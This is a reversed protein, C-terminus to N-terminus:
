KAIYTLEHYSDGTARNYIVFKHIKAFIYKDKRQTPENGGNYRYSQAVLPGIPSLASLCAIQEGVERPSSNSKHKFTAIFLPRSNRRSTGYRPPELTANRGFVLKYQPKLEIIWANQGTLLDYHHLYTEIPRRSDPETNEMRDYTFSEIPKILVSFEHTEPKYQNVSCPIAIGITKPIDQYKKKKSIENNLFSITNKEQPTTYPDNKPLQASLEKVERVREPAQIKAQTLLWSYINEPTNRDYSKAPAGDSWAVPEFSIRKHTPPHNTTASSEGYSNASIALSALSISTLRILYM